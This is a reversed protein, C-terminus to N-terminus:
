ASQQEAAQPLPHMCGRGRALDRLKKALTKAKKLPLDSPFVVAGHAQNEVANPQEPTPGVPAWYSDLNCSACEAPTVAWIGVSENGLTQTYFHYCDEVTVMWSLSVSLQGQDRTTPSFASSSPLADAPDLQSKNVQRFLPEDRKDTTALAPPRLKAM